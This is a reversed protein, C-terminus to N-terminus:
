WRGLHAGGDVYLTDGTVTAADTLYMVADAIDKVTSPRGMPSRSEMVDKPTERQLPTYVVGPAVANVRIGDAAYEMALHRTVTELGGKTIMPVSATVGRIPNRALAATITVISGGSKQVLMQKISLQTIYLFGELNTSVLSKFDEATYDTFPKNFIIGADNVLVDISKFRHVATQVIRAATAPLGIDGDVLAVFDGAEVETSQTMKRSNAVVNYGREVFTRVIGAGIGKSAGTVIATKRLDSMNIV